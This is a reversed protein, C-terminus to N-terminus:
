LYTLPVRRGTGFLIPSAVLSLVLVAFALTDDGFSITGCTVVPQIRQMPQMGIM